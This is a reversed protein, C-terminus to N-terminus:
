AARGGALVELNSVVAWHGLFGDEVFEELVYTAQEGACEVMHRRRPPRVRNPNRWVIELTRSNKLRGITGLSIM